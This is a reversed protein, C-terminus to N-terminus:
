ERRLFLRNNTPAEIVLNSSGVMDFSVSDNSYFMQYVVGEIGDLGEPGTPDACVGFRSSVGDQKTLTDDFIAVTVEFSNCFFKVRLLAVDRSTETEFFVANWNAGDPIETLTGDIDVYREIQWDYGILEVAADSQHDTGSDDPPVDGDSETRGDPTSSSGCGALGIALALFAAALPITTM